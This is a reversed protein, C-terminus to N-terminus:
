KDSLERISGKCSVEDMNNYVFMYDGATLVLEQEPEENPSSQDPDYDFIAQFVQILSEQGNFVEDNLQFLRLFVCICAICDVSFNINAWFSIFLFLDVVYSLLCHFM